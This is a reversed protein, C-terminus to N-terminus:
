QRQQELSHSFSLFSRLATLEFVSTSLHRNSKKEKQILEPSNNDWSKGKQFDPLPLCIWSSMEIQEGIGFTFKTM